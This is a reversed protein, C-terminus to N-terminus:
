PNSFQIIYWMGFDLLERWTLCVGVIIHFMGVIIVGRTMSDDKFRERIRWKM